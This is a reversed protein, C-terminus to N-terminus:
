QAKPLVSRFGVRDYKVSPLDYGRFASRCFTAYDTWSGGRLVHYTGTTPGRPDSQADSPYVAYYWDWCWEWVNGAMDYLGYGNPAFYGAPSTPTIAM